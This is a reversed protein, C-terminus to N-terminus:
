VAETFLNGHISELAKTCAPNIWLTETALVGGVNSSKLAQRNSKAWTFLKEAYLNNEYGSLVVFGKLSLLVECLQEHQAATMEHKYAGLTKPNWRTDPFYPPDVYFLTTPSDISRILEIADRSEIVVGNLRKTIAFLHRAYNKWDHAPTTGSRNSNARFGTKGRRSTIAASDFGSFSRYIFKAAQEALADSKEYTENFFKRSFPTRRILRILEPGNDRAAKFVTVINEDLDNYIEAYARPKKLLLSGGGGYPECYIRHAPFHSIIWDALVFKGGHYRVLPRKIM